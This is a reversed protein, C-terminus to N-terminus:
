GFKPGLGFSGTPQTIRAGGLCFLTLAPLGRGVCGESRMEEEEDGRGSLLLREGARQTSVRFFGTEEKRGRLGGRAPPLALPNGGAM